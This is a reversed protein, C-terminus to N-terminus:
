NMRFLDISIRVSISTDLINVMTLIGSSNLSAKFSLSNNIETNQTIKLSDKIKIVNFISTFGGDSDFDSDERKVSIVMNVAKGSLISVFPIINIDVSQNMLNLVVINKYINEIVSQRETTTNNQNSLLGNTIVSLNQMQDLILKYNQDNPYYNVINNNSYESNLTTIINEDTIIDVNKINLKHLLVLFSLIIGFYLIVNNIM